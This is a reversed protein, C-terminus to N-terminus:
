ELARLAALAERWGRKGALSVLRRLAIGAERPGYRFIGMAARLPGAGGGHGVPFDAGLAEAAMKPFGDRLSSDPPLNRFLAAVAHRVFGDVRRSLGRASDLRSAIGRLEALVELHDGVRRLATESHAFSGGAPERYWYVTERTRAYRGSFLGVVFSALLDEAMTWKRGRPLVAAARRWADARYLKGWLNWGRAATIQARAYAAGSAVSFPAHHHLRPGPGAAALARAEGHVIDAGTRGAKDFLVAVAEPPMRDDADCFVLYRGRAQEAGRVRAELATENERNVLCRLRSDAAARELIIRRSADPSADDVAIVEIDTFRQGLLSDLCDGVFPEAAYVPVVISVQVDTRRM